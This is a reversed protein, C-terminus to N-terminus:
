NKEFLLVGHPIKMGDMRNMRDSNANKHEKAAMKGNKLTKPGNEDTESWKQGGLFRNKQNKATKKAKKQTKWGFVAM